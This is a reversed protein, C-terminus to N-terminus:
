HASAQRAAPVGVLQYRIGRDRATDTFRHLLELVDHDFARTQTADVTVSAGEPTAELLEHLRPKHVFSVTPALRVRIRHAGDSSDSVVDLGHRANAWLTALASAVLGIAVGVLLDTAVVGVVTVVLPMLYSRGIRLAAVFRQPHALGFGTHILVAALAALPIHSILGPVALIAVLLLVGHAFASRWTRGGASVNAASRVIVGTIPLGGLLGSITNGLGQAVLERDPNSRRRLPDLRDVAELSLLTELSAVLALTVAIRWTGPQTLMNWDPSSLVSLGQSLDPLSVLNAPLLPTGLLALTEAVLTGTLVAALPGPLRTRVSAPVRSWLSLVLLTAGAVLTPGLSAHPLAKFPTLLMELGHGREVTAGLAYPLQQLVLLIGIAALMGTVVSSPVLIAFRGLRLLGMGLQLIGAIVIAALLAQFSGLETIAALVIAALGAAPGSVLLPTRGIASIVLGGIVGAVLGSVLPAGSALAIGLCLPLAVLFVVVGASLDATWPHGATSQKMLEEELAHAM